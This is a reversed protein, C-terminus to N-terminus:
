EERKKENQKKTPTDANLEEIGLVQSSHNTIAGCNKCVVTIIEIYGLEGKNLRIMIRSCGDIIAFKSKGCRHCTKKAKKRLVDNIADKTPM